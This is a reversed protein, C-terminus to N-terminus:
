TGSVNVCLKKRFWMEWLTFRSLVQIYFKRTCKITCVCFQRSWYYLGGNKKDRKFPTFQKTGSYHLLLVLSLEETVLFKNSPLQWIAYSQWLFQKPLQEKRKCQYCVHNYFHFYETLCMCKLFSLEWWIWPLQEMIVSKLHVAYGAWMGQNFCRSPSNQFPTLNWLSNSGSVFINCKYNLCICLNPLDFNYSIEFDFMEISNIQFLTM